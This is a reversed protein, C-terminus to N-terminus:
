SQKKPLFLRFFSNLVSYLNDDWKWPTVKSFAFLFTDFAGVVALIAIWNETLWEM